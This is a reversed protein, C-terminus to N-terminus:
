TIIKHNQKHKQVGKPQPHQLSLVRMINRKIDFFFQISTKYFINLLCIYNEM